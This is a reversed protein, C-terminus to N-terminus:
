PSSSLPRKKTEKDVFKWASFSSKDEFRIGLQSLADGRVKDCMKLTDPLSYNLSTSRINRRFEAFADIVPNEDRTADFSTQVGGNVYASTRDARTDVVDSEEKAPPSLIDSSKLRFGFVILMKAVYSSISELLEVPFGNVSDPSSSSKEIYMRTVSTLSSLLRVVLPTDFDNRLACDVDRKTNLFSENLSFEETGWKRSFNVNKTWAHRVYAHVNLFFEAFKNQIQVAQRMREENYEINHRYRHLLCFMRFSSSSHYALIEKVPTFNKMSKCMKKGEIYLQGTHVFYNAWQDTGFHAECQQLKMKM